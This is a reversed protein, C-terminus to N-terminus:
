QGQREHLSYYYQADYVVDTEVNYVFRNKNKLAEDRTVQLSSSAGVVQYLRPEPVETAETGNAINDIPNRAPEDTEVQENGGPFSGHGDDEDNWAPNYGNDDEYDGVPDYGYEEEYINVPEDGAVIERVKNEVLNLAWTFSETAQLKFFEFCLCCLIALASYGLATAPIISAAQLHGNEELFIDWAPVQTVVGAIDTLGVNLFDCMARYKYLVYDLWVITGCPLALIATLMVKEAMATAYYRRNEEDNHQRMYDRINLFIGMVLHSCILLMLMKVMVLLLAYTQVFTASPLFAGLYKGLLPDFVLERQEYNLRELASVNGLYDSIGAYIGVLFTGFAALTWFVIGVCKKLLEAM